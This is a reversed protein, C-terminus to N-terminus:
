INEQSAMFKNIETRTGRANRQFSYNYFLSREYDILRERGVYSICITKYFIVFLDVIIFFIHGLILVTLKFRYM